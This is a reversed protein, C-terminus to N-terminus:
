SASGSTSDGDPILSLLPVLCTTAWGSLRQPEEAERLCGFDRNLWCCEEDQFIRITDAIGQIRGRRSCHRISFGRPM